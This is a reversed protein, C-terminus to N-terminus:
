RTYDSRAPGPADSHLRRPTEAVGQEPVALRARLAGVSLALLEDYPAPDAFLSTASGSARWARLTRRPAIVMGVAAIGLVLSGVYLGLGALGRRLEWASVEAEGVLDTGYGTAVHHLDHRMIAARHRPGNPVAFRLGLVAVKTWPADYEAVSFGNESLYADRGRQVSWDPPVTTATASDVNQLRVTARRPNRRVDSPRM